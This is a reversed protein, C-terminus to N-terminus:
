KKSSRENKVFIHSGNVTVWKGRTSDSKNSKTTKTRLNNLKDFKATQKKQEAM